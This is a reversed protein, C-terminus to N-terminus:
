LPVLPVILWDQDDPDILASRYYTYYNSSPPMSLDCVITWGSGERTVRWQALGETLYGYGASAVWRIWVYKSTM